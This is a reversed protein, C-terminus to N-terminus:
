VHQDHQEADNGREDADHAAGRAESQAALRDDGLTLLEFGIPVVVGVLHGGLGAGSRPRRDSRRSGRYGGVVAGAHTPTAFPADATSAHTMQAPHEILSEVGGLSEALAWVRTRAVLAVAEDESASLFSIMGGFGDMQRAAIAHGPHDTLGPYLVREVKPHGSLFEVVAAANDCHARMRVALTKLGRLVLWADFPGPIAGLSNQLFKLQEAIADDSTRLSDM